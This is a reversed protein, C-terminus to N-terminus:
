IRLDGCDDLHTAECYGHCPQSVHDSVQELKEEPIARGVRYAEDDTLTVEANTEFFQQVLCRRWLIDRAIYEGRDTLRAGVYPEYTVLGGSDLTKVTETVTPGAVNLYEALEGTKVPREEELTLHFLACLYRGEGVTVAEGDPASAPVHVVERDVTM